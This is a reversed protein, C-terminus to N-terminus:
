EAARSSAAAPLGAKRLSVQLEADRGFLRVKGEAKEPLMPVHRRSAQRVCLGDAGQRLAQSRRRQSCADTAHGGRGCRVTVGFRVEEYAGGIHLGSTRADRKSLPWVLATQRM